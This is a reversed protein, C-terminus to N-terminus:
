KVLVVPVVSMGLRLLHDPDTGKELVIKVPVRQVVKVYNGSANQPPFLAFASGTGAMISEVRGRFTRGPYSDARIAVELGPRIRALQTEKYNAVVWVNDLAAVALLAQGPSVVQGAEVNKRTVYGDAPSPITTWSRSLSTERLAAAQRSRNAEQQGVRSRKLAALSEKQAIVAKMRGEQAALVPVAAEAALAEDRSASDQADATDLETKAKEYRERSVAGRDFLGKARDFDRKAQALRAASLAARSRAAEINAKAQAVQARVAALEQRAAATESGSAQSDARASLLDAEAALLAAKAGEERAAFPDTDIRVLPEGKRVPRNDEVLVETVTGAVRSSVPYVRGEVYADDTEVHTRRYLWWAGGGAVVLVTVVAFVALARRRKRARLADLDPTPSPPSRDAGDAGSGSADPRVAPDTM